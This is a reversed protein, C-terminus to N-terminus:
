RSPKSSSNKPKPLTTTPSSKRLTSRASATLLLPLAPVTALNKMYVRRLNTQSVRSLRTHYPNGSERSHCRPNQRLGSEHSYLAIARAFYELSNGYEGLYQYVNGINGTVSAVESRNGLEEHLELARTYYELAKRYESLSWYVLGISGTARAVGSREGLEEYLELARTYYEM